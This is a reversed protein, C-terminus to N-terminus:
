INERVVGFKDIAVSSKRGKMLFLATIHQPPFIFFLELTPPEEILEPYPFSKTADQM